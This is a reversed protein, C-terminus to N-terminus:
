DEPELWQAGERFFDPVYHHHVDIRNGSAMIDLRVADM